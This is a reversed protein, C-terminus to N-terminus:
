NTQRLLKIKIFVLPLLLSKTNILSNLFRYKFTAYDNNTFNSFPYANVHTLQSIKQKFDKYSYHIRLMNIINFFTFVDRKHKLNDMIVRKDNFSNHGVENILKSYSIVMLFMSDTLKRKQNASKVRMVSENSQVYRHIAIPCFVLKNAKILLKLTFIVDANNGNEDFTIDNDYILTRKAIYWWVEHRLHKNDRIYELGTQVSSFQTTFTDINLKSAKLDTTKLTDFGLFDLEHAIMYNLLLNLSNYAIYDDADIFYIYDGKAFKLLKNRTSDSGSNKEAYLFINTCGKIFENVIKLSEDTSGDDMIIIEFDNTELNQNVLSNLCNSIYNEANYMPILISLRM